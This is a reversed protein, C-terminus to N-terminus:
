LIFSRTDESENELRVNAWEYDVYTCRPCCPVLIIHQERKIRVLNKESIPSCWFEHGCQCRVKTNEGKSGIQKIVKWKKM